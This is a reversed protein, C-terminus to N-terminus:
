QEQETATIVDTAEKVEGDIKVIKDLKGNANFIPLVRAAIAAIKRVIQFIKYVKKM